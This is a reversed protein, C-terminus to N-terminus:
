SSWLSNLQLAFQKRIELREIKISYRWQQLALQESSSLGDQAKLWSSLLGLDQHEGILAHLRRSMDITWGGSVLDQSRAFEYVYRVQKAQIRLEHLLASSSTSKPNHALHLLVKRQSKLCGKAKAAQRQTSMTKVKSRTPIAEAFSHLNQLCSNLRSGNIHPMVRLEEERRAQSLRNKLRETHAPELPASSASSGAGAALLDAIVDINRLASLQDDLWKVDELVESQRRRKLAPAFTV